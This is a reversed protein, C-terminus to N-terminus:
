WSGGEVLKKDTTLGVEGWGWEGICLHWFPFLAQTAARQNGTGKGRLRAATKATHIPLASTTAEWCVALSVQEPQPGTVELKGGVKRM